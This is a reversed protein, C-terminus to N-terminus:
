SYLKNIQKINKVLYSFDKIKFRHLIMAVFVLKGDFYQQFIKLKKVKMYLEFDIERNNVSPTDTSDWQYSLNEPAKILCKEHSPYTQWPTLQAEKSFLKFWKMYFKHYLLETSPIAYIKELFESDFFPLLLEIKHQCITEFHNDLHRKQDNNMLFYYIAKAPDEKNELLETSISNELLDENNVILNKKLFRLPLSTKTSSLYSRIAKKKNANVLAENIDEDIYANGIAVSGGDGSWVSQKNIDAKFQSQQEEIGNAILQAWNPYAIKKFQKEFFNLGSNEAFLKAFESDQSRQASFNFTHLKKVNKNVQSCIVRSDLGGSLFAIGETSGDLRLKIAKNFSEYTELIDKDTVSKNVPINQWKWYSHLDFSTNIISLCEGGNLRKIKQYITRNSLCFGFALTESFGISDTELNVFPLKKFISLLSSFILIGEYYYYYLPRIGLKDTFISLRKSSYDVNVGSFVGKAQKLTNLLDNLTAISKFKDVEESLQSSQNRTIPDGAIITAQNNEEDFISESAQYSLLLTNSTSITHTIPQDCASEFENKIKLKKEESLSKGTIDTIGIFVTM